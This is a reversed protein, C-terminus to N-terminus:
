QNIVSGIDYATKHDALHWQILSADMLDVDDDANVDAPENRLTFPLDIEAVHRQIWTADVIEVEGNLDADGLIYLVRVGGNVVKFTVNTESPEDTLCYVDDEDYSVTVQHLGFFAGEAVTFHLVAYVMDGYTNEEGNYWNLTVPSSYKQPLQAAGGLEATNYTVSNLKLANDFQAKLKISAIGPNNDMRITVSVDQGPIAQESSVTFTPDDGAAAVVSTPYSLSVMLLVALLCSIIRKM